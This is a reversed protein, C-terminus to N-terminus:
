MADYRQAMIRGGDYQDLRVGLRVAIWGVILRFFDFVFVGLDFDRRALLDLWGRPRRGLALAAILKGRERQEGCRTRDVARCERSFRDLLVRARKFAHQAIEAHAALDDIRM